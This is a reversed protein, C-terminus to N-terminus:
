RIPRAILEFNSGLARLGPVRILLEDAIRAARYGSAWGPLLGALPSSVFDYIRPTCTFGAERFMAATRRPALEREGPSQYKRMLAPFLLNGVAGSLRYRSPDLSYFLGGSALLARIACPVRRLEDEPLHHLFFIGFVLGYPGPPADALTGTLFRANAAGARAADARAQAVAAPSLDLGILEEVHPALLLETDGIGCGLSLVRRPRGFHLLRGVMHARLARVAPRSFHRQAFGSYLQEHYELEGRAGPTM